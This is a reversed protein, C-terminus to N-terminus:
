GCLASAGCVSGGQDLPVCCGSVCDSDFFCVDACVAPSGEFSTCLTTSEAFGCCDGNISCPDGAQACVTSGDDGAGDDDGPTGDDASGDDGSSDDLACFAGQYAGQDFDECAQACVEDPDDCAGNTCSGSSVVGGECLCGVSCDDGVECANGQPSTMDCTGGDDGGDGDGDGDGDDAGDDGPQSGTDASGDGEDGKDCAAALVFWAALLPKWSIRHM